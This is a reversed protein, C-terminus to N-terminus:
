NCKKSNYIIVTTYSVIAIGQPLAVYQAYKQQDTLSLNLTSSFFPICITLFFTKQQSEKVLVLSDIYQILIPYQYKM